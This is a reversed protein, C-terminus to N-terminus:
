SNSITFYKQQRSKPKDPHTMSLQNATCMPKLYKSVVYYVSSIGLYESIEEKSRPTSCFMLIREKVSLEASLESDTKEPISKNETIVPENYLITKFNGRRSEFVPPKLGAKEMEHYITPIGSFRNETDIMVELSGALFPNRTDAPVKGLDNITLRGYLGGPNEVELRDKYLVIRIPSDETHVSYDRHILANLIVERVAILPYETKDARKGDEKIITATRINRRVFNMAEELMQPITGEIRKNDIFRAGSEGVNGIETGDVLMATISMQPFFAQPYDCLLLVGAVTPRNDEMLGQLHLIKEKSHKALIPKALRLKIFYETLLDSDFDDDSAREVIRLEDRIKKRYAEYSYVEYETMPQDSEGVRVYSGRVRGAAKYFCPKDTIECESIEASVITKGAYSTVTFVPRVVPEMQLAYNTVKTQLDQADYVGTIAYDNKEDIGFIITGGGSQNSFSSLSDYLKEPTGKEAKKLEINQMECKQKLIRDILEHLEESLM